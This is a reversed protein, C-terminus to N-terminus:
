LMLVKQTENYNIWTALDILEDNITANYIIEQYENQADLSVDFWLCWITTITACMCTWFIMFGISVYKCWYPYKKYRENFLKDKIQYVITM